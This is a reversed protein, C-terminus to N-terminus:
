SLAKKVARSLSKQLKELGQQDSSLDLALQALKVHKAHFAGSKTALVDCATRGLFYYCDALMRKELLWDTKSQFLRLDYDGSKLEAVADVSRAIAPRTAREIGICELASQVGEAMGALEAYRVQELEHAPMPGTGSYALAGRVFQYAGAKLWMAALLSEKADKMRQQYMLSTVLAKRGFSRLSKARKEATVGKITSSLSFSKSDKITQVDGFGPSFDEGVYMLEVVHDGVWVVSNTGQGFVIIDYECCGFAEGEARCGVLASPATLSAVFERVKAPIMGVVAYLNPM